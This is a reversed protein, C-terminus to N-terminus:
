KLHERVLKAVKKWVEDRKAQKMTNLPESPPNVAQFRSLDSENFLCPRLIVSLITAGRREAAELLSPLEDEAIYDSALFDSSVLLIAVKASQLANKIEDRWNAGAQIYTDDWIKVSGQRIFLALHTKLEELFRSDKRSYSIFAVPHSAQADTDTTPM